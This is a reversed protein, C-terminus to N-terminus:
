NYEYADADDWEDGAQAPEIFSKCAVSVAPRYNLKGEADICLRGLAGLLEMHADTCESGVLNGNEDVTDIWQPKNYLAELEDAVNLLVGDQLLENEDNIGGNAYEFAATRAATETNGVGLVQVMDCDGRPTISVIAKM